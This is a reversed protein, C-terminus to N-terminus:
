PNSIEILSHMANATLQRSLIGKFEELTKVTLESFALKIDCVCTCFCTCEFSFHISKIFLICSCLVMEAVNPDFKNFYHM